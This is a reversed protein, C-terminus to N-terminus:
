AAGADLRGVSSQVHSSNMSIARRRPSIGSAVPASNTVQGKTHADYRQVSPTSTIPSSKQVVKAEVVRLDGGRELPKADHRWPSSLVSVLPRLRTALPDATKWVPRMPMAPGKPRQTTGAYEVSVGEASLGALSM